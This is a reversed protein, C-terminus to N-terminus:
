LISFLLVKKINVSIVSLISQVTSGPGISFAIKRQACCVYLSLHVPMAHFSINSGMARHCHVILLVNLMPVCLFCVCM